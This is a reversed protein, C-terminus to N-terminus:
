AEDSHSQNASRAHVLLQSSKFGVQTRDGEGQRGGEATLILFLEGLCGPLVFSDRRPLKIEVSGDSRPLVRVRVSRTAPRGTPAAHRRSTM